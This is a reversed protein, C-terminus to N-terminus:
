KEVKLPKSFSFLILNPNYLIYPTIFVRKGDLITVHRCNLQKDIYAILTHVEEKDEKENNALHMLVIPFPYRDIKEMKKLVREDLGVTFIRNCFKCPVRTTHKIKNKNDKLETENETM